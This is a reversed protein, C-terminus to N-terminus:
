IPDNTSTRDYAVTCRHREGSEVAPGTSCCTLTGGELRLGQHRVQTRPRPRSASDHCLIAKQLRHRAAQAATPVSGAFVMELVEEVNGHNEAPRDTIEFDETERAADEIVIKM